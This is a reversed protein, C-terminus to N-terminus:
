INFIGKVHAVIRALYEVQSQEDQERATIGLKKRTFGRQKLTRSITSIGVCVERNVALDKQLERLYLDPTRELLSELYKGLNTLESKDCWVFCQEVYRM